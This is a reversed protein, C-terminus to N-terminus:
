RRKKPQRRGAANKPPLHDAPRRAETKSSAPSEDGEDVNPLNLLDRIYAQNLLRNDLKQQYSAMEALVMDVHTDISVTKGDSDLFIYSGTFRKLAQLSEVLEAHRINIGRERKLVTRVSDVHVKDFDDAEGQLEIIVELIERVPVKEEEADLEARLWDNVQEVTRCTDFIERLKSFGLRKRAALQVLVALQSVRMPTVAGDQMIEQNLASSPNSAGQFDPAIVLAYNANHAIRHRALRSVNVHEAPVSSNGTSKADYTISYDARKSNDDRVGVIASAVGEPKGSQGLRVVAYGIGELAEHVANELEKEDAASDLLNQAIAAAGRRRSAVLERMFDDRRLLVQRVVSDPMGEELMFAETLIETVAILRFAEDDKSGEVFNSYFPHLTNVLVIRTLPNYQAIYHGVGLPVPAVSQILGDESELDVELRDVLEQRQPENLGRPVDTLVLDVEGDLARKIARVLPRRSLARPTKGIKTGIEAEREKSDIWLTYIRRALNFQTRIYTQLASVAPGQYVAERTTALLDDLGDSNVIIRFRDFTQHSLAPMGFLPDTLNVLRDRVRVFIGHSRGYEIFRGQNLSESYLEVRGYIAGNLEPIRVETRGESQHVTTQQKDATPNALIESLIDDGLPGAANSAPQEGLNWSFLPSVNELRGPVEDNNIYLKFDDSNPLANQLVWRLRGAKLDQALPKLDSMAVATWSTGAQTLNILRDVAAQGGTLTRLPGLATVLDDQSLQRVDLKLVQEDTTKDRSISSYHMTVALTGALSHSIYTLDRALVYTALKGIGFKGIPPRTGNENERKKSRAIKWLDTLGDLDMGDGDDIVWIVAGDSSFSAPLLLDVRRAMADYSNSILEEIAKNPSSYLGGSFLEIIRYGITVQLSNIENGATVFTPSQSLEEGM